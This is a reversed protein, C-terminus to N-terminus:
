REYQQLRQKSETSFEEMLGRRCDDCLVYEFVCENRRWMKSVQYGGPCDSLSQNCRTCEAFPEETFDSYLVEPIPPPQSDEDPQSSFDHM